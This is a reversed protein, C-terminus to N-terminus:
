NLKLLTKVADLAEREDAGFAQITMEGRVGSLSLMGLMSKANIVKNQYQILISSEFREVGMVYREVGERSFPMSDVKVTLSLM